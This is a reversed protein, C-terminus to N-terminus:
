EKWLGTQKLKEKLSGYEEKRPGIFDIKSNFSDIWLGDSKDYQHTDRTSSHRVIKDDSAIWQSIFSDSDGIFGEYFAFFHRGSYSIKILDGKSAAILEEESGPIIIKREISTIM